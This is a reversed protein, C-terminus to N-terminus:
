QREAMGKPKRFLGGGDVLDAISAENETDSAAPKGVSVLGVANGIFLAALAEGLRELDDFAGPGLFAERVASLIKGAVLHRQHWLRSLLRKRRDADGGGADVGIGRDPRQTVGDEDSRAEARERFLRRQHAAIALSPAGGAMGARALDKQAHRDVDGLGFL